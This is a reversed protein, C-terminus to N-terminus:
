RTSVNDALSQASQSATTTQDFIYSVIDEELWLKAALEETMEKGSLGAAIIKRKSRKSWNHLWAPLSELLTSKGKPAFSQVRTSDTRAVNLVNRTQTIGIFTPKPLHPASIRKKPLEPRSKLNSNILLKNIWSIVSM